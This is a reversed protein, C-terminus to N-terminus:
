CCILLCQGSGCINFINFHHKAVEGGKFELSFPKVAFNYQVKFFLQHHVPFCFIIFLGNISRSHDASCGCPVDEVLAHPTKVIPQEKSGPCCDGFLTGCPALSRGESWTVWLVFPGHTGAPPGVSRDECQIALM